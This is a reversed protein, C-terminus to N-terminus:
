PLPDAGPKRLRPAYEAPWYQRRAKCSLSCTAQEPRQPLFGGGCWVCERQGGGTRRHPRRPRPTTAALEWLLGRRRWVIGNPNVIVAPPYPSPISMTIRIRSAAKAGANGARGARTGSPSAAHIPVATM